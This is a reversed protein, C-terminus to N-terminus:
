FKWMKENYDAHDAYPLALILVTDCLATVPTTTWDTHTASGCEGCIAPMLPEHEKGCHCPEPQIPKHLEVIRRKAECEALVRAPNVVLGDHEWEYRGFYKSGYKIDLEVAPRVMAEDEAIRALLFETLMM